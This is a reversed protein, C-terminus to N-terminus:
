PVSRRTRVRYRLWVVGGPLRRSRQLQLSAIAKAPARGPVDFLGPVGQGGDVIPVIVQSVEDVLGAQLM